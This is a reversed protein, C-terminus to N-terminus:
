GFMLKICKKRHQEHRGISRKHEAKHMVEDGWRARVVNRRSEEAGSDEDADDATWESETMLQM